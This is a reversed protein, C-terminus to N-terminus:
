VTTSIFYLGVWTYSREAPVELEWQDRTLRRQLRWGHSGYYDVIEKEQTDRFGSLILGGRRHVLRLLEGQKAVQVPFPVNATILQFAPRLAETSGQVWFVRHALRNRLANDRSTLLAAGSIDCGVIERVGMAAGTLTLIGSGCGVDLLSSPWQVRCAEILLELCLRTSPHSIPFAGGHHLRLLKQGPRPRCPHWSSCVAVESTLRLLM